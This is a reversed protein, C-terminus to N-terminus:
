LDIRWYIGYYQQKGRDVTQGDVKLEDFDAFLIEPTIVFAPTISIPVFIVFANHKDKDEFGNLPNNLKAIRQGYGAEVSVMDNFKYGAVGFWGYNDVDEVAVARTTPNQYLAPLFGFNNTSSPAQTGLAALNQGYYFSARVYFPGIGYSGDIAGMWTDISQTSDTATDKADFSGYAGRVVWSTPGFAASLSAELMPITADVNNWTSPAANANQLVPSLNGQGLYGGPPTTFATPLGAYAPGEAGGGFSNNPNSGSARWGPELAALKLLGNVANIPMHLQLGARRTSGGMDGFGDLFGGGGLLCENCIPHYTPTWTQGVILTGVNDIDYTGYWHRMISNRDNFSGATQRDRPRIEVNGGVKGSKFRVGFRTAGDDLTWILDSDDFNTGVGQYQFGTVSAANTEKDATVWYTGVRVSGYVELEKTPPVSLREKESYFLAQAAIAAVSFTFVMTLAVFVVSLKKMDRVEQLIKFHNKM